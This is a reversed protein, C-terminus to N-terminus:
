GNVMDIKNMPHIYSDVMRRVHPSEPHWKVTFAQKQREFSQCPQSVRIQFAKTNFINAHLIKTYFKTSQLLKVQTPKRVIHTSFIKTLKTKM